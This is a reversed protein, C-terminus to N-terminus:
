KLKNRTNNLSSLRQRNAIIHKSSLKIKIYKPTGIQWQFGTKTLRGREELTATKIKDSKHIM